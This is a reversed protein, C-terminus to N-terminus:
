VMASPSHLVKDDIKWASDTRFWDPLENLGQGTGPNIEFFSHDRYGVASRFKEDTSLAEWLEFSYQGLEVLRDGEPERFEYHLCGTCTGSTAGFPNSTSDLVIINRSKAADRASLALNYATSLGISGAGVIVITEDPPQRQEGMHPGLYSDSSQIRMAMGEDDSDKNYLEESPAFPKNM